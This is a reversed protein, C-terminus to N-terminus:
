KDNITELRRCADLGRRIEYGDWGGDAPIIEELVINKKFFIDNMNKCIEIRKNESLKYFVSNMESFLYNILYAASGSKRPDLGGDSIAKAVHMMVEEQLISRVGISYYEGLADERANRYAIFYSSAIVVCLLLVFAVGYIIKSM